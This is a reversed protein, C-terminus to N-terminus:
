LGELDLKQQVSGGGGGLRSRDALDRGRVDPGADKLGTIARIPQDGGGISEPTVSGAGGGGGANAAPTPHTGRKDEPAAFLPTRWMWVM